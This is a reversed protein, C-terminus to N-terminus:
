QLFLEHLLSSDHSTTLIMGSPLILHVDRETQEMQEALAHRVDLLSTRKLNALLSACELGAVSTFGLEVDEGSEDLSAKVSLTLILPVLTEWQCLEEINTSTLKRLLPFVQDNCFCAARRGRSLRSEESGKGIFDSGPLDIIDHIRVVGGEYVRYRGRFGNTENEEGRWLGGEGSDRDEQEHACNVFGDTEFSLSIEHSGEIGTGRFTWYEQFVRPESFLTGGVVDAESCLVVRPGSAAM